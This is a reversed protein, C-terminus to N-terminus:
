LHCTELEELGRKLSEKKTSPDKFVEARGLEEPYPLPLAGPKQLCLWVSGFDGTFNLEEM